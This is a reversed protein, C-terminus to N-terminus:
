EPHAAIDVDINESANAESRRRNYVEDGETMLLRTETVNSSERSWKQPERCGAYQYTLSFVTPPKMPGPYM